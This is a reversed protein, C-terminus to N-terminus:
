ALLADSSDAVFDTSNGANLADFCLREFFLAAVGFTMM